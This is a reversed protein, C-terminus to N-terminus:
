PLSEHKLSHQINHWYFMIYAFVILVVLILERGHFSKNSMLQMSFKVYVELCFKTEFAKM